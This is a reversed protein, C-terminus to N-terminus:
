YVEEKEEEEKEKEKEGEEEEKEDKGEEEEEKEEDEAKEKEKRKVMVMAKEEEEDEEKDERRKRRRRKFDTWDSNTSAPASTSRGPLSLRPMIRLTIPRRRRISYDSVSCISNRPAFSYPSLFGVSLRKGSDDYGEPTTVDDDNEQSKEEDKTVHIRFGGPCPGGGEVQWVNTSDFNRGAENGLLFAKNIPDCLIQYCIWFPILGGKKESKSTSEEM